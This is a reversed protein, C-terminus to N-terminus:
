YYKIRDMSHQPKKNSELIGINFPNPTRTTYYIPEDNLQRGERINFETWAEKVRTIHLRYNIKFFKVSSRLELINNITKLHKFIIYRLDFNSFVKDISDSIWSFQNGYKNVYDQTSIITLKNNTNM